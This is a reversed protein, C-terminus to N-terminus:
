FLTDRMDMGREDIGSFIHKRRTDAIRHVAATRSQYVSLSPEHRHASLGTKQSFESCYRFLNQFFGLYQEDTIRIIGGSSDGSGFVEISGYGEASLVIQQKYM